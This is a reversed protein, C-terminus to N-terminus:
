ALNGWNEGTVNWGTQLVINYYGVTTNTLHKGAPVEEVVRYTGPATFSFAYYGTSNTVATPDGAVYKGSDNLDIFLTVGAIGTEGNDMKGNGNTDTYVYGALSCVETPTTTTKENGWNEGTIAWGNQVTINYYGVTPNTLKYGSPLIERVQWVGAALGTFSYAGNAGTTSTPDGTALSGTQKLDIFFEVGSLYADGSVYKKADTPDVYAFGAISATGTAPATTTKANGWNEGTIKSGTGVTISLYGNAPNTLKYGSPLVERIQYTGAALSGFSYDGSSNTTVSTEGTNLIGNQNADIYLTVGSLGADSSTLTGSSKADVYVEGSLSSSGTTSVGAIAPVLLNAIPTGRGTALDYGTTANYGNSGTTIDHYDSQPASYIATSTQTGSLASLGSEARGQDAIAILAAWAPASFSTGAIQYWKNAYGGNYSDYVDVGTNPDGNISVDPITRWTSSQTVTSQYSPKTEYQSIGGGSNGYATESSYVGNPATLTTGGVALVKPSFAPYTGPVGTDGTAAVFTVPTHGSPTTFDADYETEGAFESFGFSMSVVSVGPEDAATKVGYNLLQSATAGDAEVLDISADPALAHTWEVDLTAEEAWATNPSPDGGADQEIKTFSPPDAIGFQKDFIHLDSTSFSSASSSVLAPDDYATVIAITQGAGNGTLGNLKINNIGYISAIQAPTFVGSQPSATGDALTGTAPTALLLPYATPATTLDAVAVSLLRRLELMEIGARSRAPPNGRTKRSRLLM